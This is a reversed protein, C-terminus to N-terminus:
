TAKTKKTKAKEGDGAKRKKDGGKSAGSQAKIANNYAPPYKKVFEDVKFKRKCGNYNM